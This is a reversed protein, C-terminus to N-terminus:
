HLLTPNPSPTWDIYQSADSVFLEADQSNQIRFPAAVIAAAKPDCMFFDGGFRARGSEILALRAAKLRSREVQDSRM